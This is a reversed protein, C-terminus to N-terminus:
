ARSLYNPDFPSDSKIVGFALHLLKRMSACIISLQCHGKSQLRSALPKIFPNWTMASVAPFYLGRRIRSSGIKSIPSKGKFIGSENHRPNLGAFAVLQNVTQFLDFDVEALLLYATTKGIGSISLLLKYRHKFPPHSKVLIDLAAELAELQEDFMAIMSQISLRVDQCLEGTLRTQEQARLQKVTDWRRYLSKFKEELEHPPSWLRPHKEKCFRAILAADLKDTKNRSLESRAFSKIQLPNVISVKIAKSCLYKALPISFKGTAEMCVHFEKTSGFSTLWKLFAKFGGSKNDFSKHKYKEAILVSSDFKAKAIDIGVYIM